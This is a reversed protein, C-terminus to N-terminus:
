LRQKVLYIAGEDASQSAVRLRQRLTASLWPEVFPAIGGALAVPLTNTQQPPLALLAEGLESIAAASQRLLGTAMRDGQQHQAIVLPALEAFQSSNAQNSWTVLNSFANGAHALVDCALGSAQDRGDHVRITHRVAQLGLWAGGGEDDHPFGWGGVRSIQKNRIQMGIAGTGVIIIAGDQGGHAGLCATYADSAVALTTFAHPTNIFREYATPIESGALGMGVHVPCALTSFNIGAEQLIHAIADQISHWAQEVSLRINAPGGNAQGVLRGTEDEIRVRTKTGGGDVGIFLQEM